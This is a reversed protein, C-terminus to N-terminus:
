TSNIVVKNLLNNGDLYLTSIKIFIKTAIIRYCEERCVSKVFTRRLIHVDAM